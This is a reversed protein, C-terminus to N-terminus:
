TGQAADPRYRFGDRTDEFLTGAPLRAIVVAMWWDGVCGGLHFALPGILWLGVTPFALLAGLGALNVVVTPALVVTLYQRRTLWHGPATAYFVPFFWAVLKAGYRPRAGAWRFALGHCWEHVFFLGLVALVAAAGAAALIPVGSQGPTVTITFNLRDVGGLWGFLVVGFATVIGGLATLYWVKGADLTWQQPLDANGTGV